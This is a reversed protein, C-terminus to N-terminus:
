TLKARARLAPSRQRSTGRAQIVQMHRPAALSKLPGRTLGLARSGYSRTLFCAGKKGTLTIFGPGGVMSSSKVSVRGLPRVSGSGKTTLDTGRIQYTGRHSGSLVLTSLLMMSELTEMDPRMRMTKRM